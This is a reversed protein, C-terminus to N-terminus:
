EIYIGENFITMFPRPGALANCVLALGGDEMAYLDYFTPIFNRELLIGFRKGSNSFDNIYDIEIWKNGRPMQEGNSVYTSNLNPPAYNVNM